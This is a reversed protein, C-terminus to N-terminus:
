AIQPPGSPSPNLLIQLPSLTNYPYKLNLTWQTLHQTYLILKSFMVSQFHFCLSLLCTHLNSVSPCQMMALGATLYRCQEPTLHPLAQGRVLRCTSGDGGCVGCNDERAGSALQRDCGVEQVNIVFVCDSFSIPSVLLHLPLFVLSSSVCYVWLLVPGHTASICDLRVTVSPLLLFWCIMELWKDFLFIIEYLQSGFTPPM